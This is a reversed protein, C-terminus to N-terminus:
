EAGMTQVISMRTALYMPYASSVLAVFAAGILTSGLSEIRFTPRLMTTGFLMALYDNGIPIGIRAVADLIIRGALIGLVAGTGVLMLAEVLYLRRVFSHQAGIARMTGIEKTQEIVSFALGNALVLVIVAALVAIGIQFVSKLLFMISANMGAISLWGVATAGMGAKRFAKNAAAIVTSPRIGPQLRALIFHWAGKEVDVTEVRTGADALYRAALELGAVEPEDALLAEPNEPRADSPEEFFSDLNVDTDALELSAGTGLTGTAVGLLSRITTPDVYVASGEDGARSPSDVIGRLTVARIAFASGTAMTLQFGEGVRPRTGETKELDDATSRPLVIWATDGADPAAGDIFALLPFLSFYGSGRVGFVPLKIQRGRPSELMAAGSVISEARAVGPIKRLLAEASGAEPLVPITEYDGITPVSFGFLGFARPFTARVAIDGTYSEQFEARIGSAAAGLVADGAVFLFVGAAVLTILVLSSRYNRLLGRLALKHMIMRRYM